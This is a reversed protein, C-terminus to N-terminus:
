AASDEPEPHQRERMYLAIRLGRNMTGAFKGEAKRETKRDAERETEKNVNEDM